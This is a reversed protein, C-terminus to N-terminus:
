LRDFVTSGDCLFNDLGDLSKRTSAGCKSLIAFLSPSALPKFRKMVGEEECYALYQAVIRSLIINRIVDLLYPPFLCFPFIDFPFIDFISAACFM